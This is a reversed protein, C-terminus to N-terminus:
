HKKRKVRRRSRKLMAHYPIFVGANPSPSSALTRCEDVHSLIDLSIRLHQSICPTQYSIFAFMYIPNVLCSEILAQESGGCSTEASYSQPMEVESSSSLAKMTAVEYRMILLPEERVIERGWQM